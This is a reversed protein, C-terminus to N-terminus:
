RNGFTRVNIDVCETTTPIEIRKPGTTQGPLPRAAERRLLAPARHPRRNRRAISMHTTIPRHYARAAAVRVPRPRPSVYKGRPGRENRPAGADGRAVEHTAGAQLGASRTARRTRAHPPRDRGSPERGFASRAGSPLKVITLHFGGVVAVHAEAPAPVLSQIVCRHGRRPCLVRAPSRDVRVQGATCWREWTPPDPLLPDASRRGVVNVSGQAAGASCFVFCSPWRPNRHGAVTTASGPRRPHASAPSRGM